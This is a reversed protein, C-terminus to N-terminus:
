ARDAQEGEADAIHEVIFREHATKGSRNGPRQEIEPPDRRLDVTRCRALARGEFGIATRDVGCQAIRLRGIAHDRSRIGLSGCSRALGGCQLTGRPQGIRTELGPEGIEEGHEIRPASGIGATFAGGRRLAARPAGPHQQPM